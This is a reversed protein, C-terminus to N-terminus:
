MRLALDVPQEVVAADPDPPGGRNEEGNEWNDGHKYPIDTQEM